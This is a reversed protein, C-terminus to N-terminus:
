IHIPSRDEIGLAVEMDDVFARAADDHDTRIAVV